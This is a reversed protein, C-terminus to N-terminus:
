SDMGVVRKYRPLFLSYTDSNEAQVIDNYLVEIRKGIYEDFDEDRDFDSLGTGVKVHVEKGDVIGQCVLAGVMGTYKGTGENVETCELVCENTAKKKILAPTRKWEYMDEPYRLILGEYGRKIHDNYMEDLESGTNVTVSPCPEIYRGGTTNEICQSLRTLYPVSCTQNEWSDLEIYDFVMFKYDEIDTNSGKLIRNVSGTISTRATQKGNGHVLEGDYVGDPYTRMENILSDVQLRKGSRTRPTAEGDMVSVILRVGDYKTSALAPYRVNPVDKALMVEFTPILGPYAKNITKISVGCSLSGKLILRVIEGYKRSMKRSHFRAENGTVVRASLKYLDMMLDPLYIDDSIFTMDAPASVYYNISSDYMALLVQKWKENDQHKKLVDLKANTGRTKRLEHVIKIPM